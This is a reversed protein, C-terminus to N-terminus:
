EPPIYRPEFMKLMHKFGPNNVSNLPLMDKAICYCVSETLTQWRSSDKSIPTLREFAKAITPQQQSAKTVGSVGSDTAKVENYEQRHNYQLHVLMNTTNGKYSLEQRCLRCYVSSRKKKDPEIFKEDRAPFGFFRWVPSKAKELPLFEIAESITAM